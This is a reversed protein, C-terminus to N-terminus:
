KYKLLKIIRSHYKEPYHPPLKILQPPLSLNKSFSILAKHMNEQDYGIAIIDPTHEKLASWSGQLKDGEIIKKQLIKNIL